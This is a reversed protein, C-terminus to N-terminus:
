MYSILIYLIDFSIQCEDKLIFILQNHINLFNSIIENKLLQDSLILLFQQIVHHM